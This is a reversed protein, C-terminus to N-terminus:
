ELISNVIDMILRVANDIDIKEVNQQYFISYIINEFLSINELVGNGEGVIAKEKLYLINNFFLYNDVKDSFKTINFIFYGNIGTIYTIFLIDNKEYNNMFSSIVYFNILVNEDRIINKGQIPINSSILNMVQLNNNTNSIRIWQSSNEITNEEIIPNMERPILKIVQINNISESINDITHSIVEGTDSELVWISINKPINAENYISTILLYNSIEPIETINKENSVCSYLILILILSMFIKINNKM